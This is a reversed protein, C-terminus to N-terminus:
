KKWKIGKDNSKKRTKKKKEKSVKKEIIRIKERNKEIQM